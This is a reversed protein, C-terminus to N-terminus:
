VYDSINRIKLSRGYITTVIDDDTVMHEPVEIVDPDLGNDNTIQGDGISLLWQSFQVDGNARM